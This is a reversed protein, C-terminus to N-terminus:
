KKLHKAHPKSSRELSAELSGSYVPMAAPMTKLVNNTGSAKKMPIDKGFVYPIYFSMLLTVLVVTVVLIVLLIDM